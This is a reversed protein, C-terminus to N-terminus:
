LKNLYILNIKNLFKQKRSEKSIILVRILKKNTKGTLEKTKVSIELKIKSDKQV